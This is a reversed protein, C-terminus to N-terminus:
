RAAQGERGTKKAHHFTCLSVLNSEDDTGGKHKPVVHDVQNAPQGCLRCTHGDRELIRERIKRWSHGYGRQGANPRDKDWKGSGHVPCPKRNACPFRPCPAAPRWPSIADGAQCVDRM